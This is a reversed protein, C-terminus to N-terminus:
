LLNETRICLPQFRALRFTKQKFGFCALKSYRAGFCAIKFINFAHQWKNQTIKRYALLSYSLPLVLGHYGTPISM